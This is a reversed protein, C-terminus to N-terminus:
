LKSRIREVRRILAEVSKRIGLVDSLNLARTLCLEVRQFESEVLAKANEPESRLQEVSVYGQEGEETTPDKVYNVTIIERRKISFEVTVRRILHRAQDLRFSHGAKKNDWEFSEHLPSDPARASRVVMEPTLRGSLELSQIEQAVASLRRKVATKKM